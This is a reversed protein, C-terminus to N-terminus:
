DYEKNQINITLGHEQKLNKGNLKIFDCIIKCAKKMAYITDTGKRIKVFNDM